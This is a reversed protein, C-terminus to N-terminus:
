RGLSTPSVNLNNMFLSKLSTWDCALLSLYETDPACCPSLPTGSRQTVITTVMTVRKLQSWLWTKGESCRGEEESPEQSIAHLEMFISWLLICWLHGGDRDRPQTHHLGPSCQRGWLHAWGLPTRGKRFGGRPEGSWLIAPGGWAEQALLRPPGLARPTSLRGASM